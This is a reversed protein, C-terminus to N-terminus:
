GIASIEFDTGKFNMEPEKFDIEGVHEDVYNEVDDIYEDPVDIEGFVTVYPFAEITVKM